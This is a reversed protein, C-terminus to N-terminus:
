QNVACLQAPEDEVSAFDANEIKQVASSISRKVVIEITNKEKTEKKEAWGLLQFFLKIAGVDGDSGRKYLQMILDECLPMMKYQVGQFFEEFTLAQLHRQVARRTLGTMTALEGVAPIRKYQEFHELLANKVRVHTDEWKATVKMVALDESM